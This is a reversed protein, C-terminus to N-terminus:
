GPPPPSQQSSVWRDFPIAPGFIFHDFWDVLDEVVAPQNDFVIATRVSVTGAPARFALVAHENDIIFVDFGISHNINLLYPSALDAVQHDLYIRRRKEVSDSFSPPLTPFDCAIVADLRAPRGQDRATRLRQAVVKAWNDPASMTPSTANLLVRVRSQATACLRSVEDYIVNHGTVHRGGLGSKILGELSEVKSFTKGLYLNEGAIFAAIAGLTILILDEPDKNILWSYDIEFFDSVGIIMGGIGVIGLFIQASYTLFKGLHKLFAERINQLSHASLV